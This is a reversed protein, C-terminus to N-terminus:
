LHYQSHCHQSNDSKSSRFRAAGAHAAPLVKAKGCDAPKRSGAAKTTLGDSGPVNCSKSVGGYNDTPLM